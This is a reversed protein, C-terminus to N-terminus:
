ARTGGDRSDDDGSGHRRRRRELEGLVVLAGIAALVAYRGWRLVPGLWDPLDPLPLNPLEPLDARTLGRTLYFVAAVVAVTLVVTVARAVPGPGAARDPAPEADPAPGRDPSEDDMGAVSPAAPPSIM